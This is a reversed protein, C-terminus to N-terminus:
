EDVEARLMLLKAYEKLVTEKDEGDAAYEWDTAFDRMVDELTPPRYHHFTLDLATPAHEGELQIGWHLAGGWKKPYNSLMLAIVRGHAKGREMEDGIHIYEGEADKPLEIYHEAVLAWIEDAQEELAAMHQADLEAVIDLLKKAAASAMQGYDRAHGIETALKTLGDM